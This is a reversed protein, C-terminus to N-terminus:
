SPLLFVDRKDFNKKRMHVKANTTRMMSKTISGKCMHDQTSIGNFPVHSSNAHKALQTQDRINGYSHLQVPKHTRVGEESEQVLHWTPQFSFLFLSVPLSQDVIGIEERKNPFGTVKQM